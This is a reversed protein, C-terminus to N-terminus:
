RIAWLYVLAAISFGLFAVAAARSLARDKDLVAAVYYWASFLTCFLAVSVFVIDLTRPSV